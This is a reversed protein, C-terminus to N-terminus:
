SSASVFKIPPTETLDHEKELLIKTRKDLVTQHTPSQDPVFTIEVTDRNVGDTLDKM